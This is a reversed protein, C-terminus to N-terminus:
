RGGEKSMRRKDPKAFYKRDAIGLMRCTKGFSDGFGKMVLSNVIFNCCNPLCYRIKM